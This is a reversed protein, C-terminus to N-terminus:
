VYAILLCHLINDREREVYSIGMSVLTLIARLFRGYQTM